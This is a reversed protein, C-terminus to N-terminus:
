NRRWTSMRRATSGQNVSILHEDEQIPFAKFRGQLVHGTTRYHRNYRRAHVKLVWQLWRGM